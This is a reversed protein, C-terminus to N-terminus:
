APEESRAQEEGEALRRLRPEDLIRITVGDAEVIQEDRLQRLVRSLTESTLNLHSALHRKLGPLHVENSRAGALLHGAVRGLSDRLTLREVLDVMHKVWGAMGALLQICLDHDSSLVAHFADTPLLVSQTPSLAEAFAPCPFRGIAAVEAFTAGSGMMHLVHEKGNPALTFIRVLGSGVVYVGPVPDGQRFVIQGEAFNVVRAIRILRTWSEGRVLSFLRCRKLIGSVEDTMVQKKIFPQSAKIWILSLALKM